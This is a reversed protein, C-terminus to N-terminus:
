FDINMLREDQSVSLAKKEGSVNRSLNLWHLNLLGICTWEKGTEKQFADTMRLTFERTAQDPLFFSVCGLSVISLALPVLFLFFLTM